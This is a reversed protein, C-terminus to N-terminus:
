PLLGFAAQQDTPVLHLYRDPELAIRRAVFPCVPLVSHGTAAADDLAARVVATAAGTGRFAGMSETHDFSRLSGDDHYTVLAAIAGDILAEFRQHHDDHRVTTPM